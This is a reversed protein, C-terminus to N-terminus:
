GERSQDRADRPDVVRLGLERVIETHGRGKSLGGRRANRGKTHALTRLPIPGLCHLTNADRDLRCGAGYRRGRGILQRIAFLKGDTLNHEVAVRERIGELLRALFVLCSSCSMLRANSSPVNTQTPPNDSITDPCAGGTPAWALAM